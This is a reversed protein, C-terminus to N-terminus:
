DMVNTVFVSQRDHRPASTFSDFIPPVGISWKSAQLTSEESIMKVAQMTQNGHQQRDVYRTEEHAGSLVVLAKITNTSANCFLM